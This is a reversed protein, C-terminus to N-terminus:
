HLQQWSLISIGTGFVGLALPDFRVVVSADQTPFNPNSTGRNNHYMAGVQDLSAQSEFRWGM